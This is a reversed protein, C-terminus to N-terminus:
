RFARRISAAGPRYRVRPNGYVYSTNGHRGLLMKRINEKKRLSNKGKWVKEAVTLAEKGTIRIISIAGGPATCLAAATDDKASLKKSFITMIKRKDRSFFGTSIIIILIINACLVYFDFNKGYFIQFIM